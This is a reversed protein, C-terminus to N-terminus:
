SEITTAELNCTAKLRDAYRLGHVEIDEAFFYGTTVATSSWAVV